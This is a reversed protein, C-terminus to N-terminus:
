RLSEDFYWSFSDSIGGTRLIYDFVIGILTGSEDGFVCRKSENPKFEINNEEASKLLNEQNYEESSYDYGDVFCKILEPNEKVFDVLNKSSSTLNRIIFSSSSSNSVFGNRVKM